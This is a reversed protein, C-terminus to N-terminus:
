IRELQKKIYKKQLEQEEVYKIAEEVVHIKVHKEMLCKRIYGRSYKKGTKKQLRKQLEKTYGRPLYSRLKFLDIKEIM